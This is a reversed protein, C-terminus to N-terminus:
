GAGEDFLEGPRHKVSGAEIVFGIQGSTDVREIWVQFDEADAMERLVALSEEDLLSGDRVRIVRLKPNGRMAIACSVRLQDADSAQEFPFGNFIVRGESLSLGEVPMDAKEIRNRAQELCESITTSCEAAKGEAITAEGMLRAKESAKRHIENKADASAIEEHLPALDKREPIEPFSEVSEVLEALEKVIAQRRAVAERLAQEAGEEEIGAQELRVKAESVLAERRERERQQEVIAANEREGEQIQKSIATVDVLDTPVDDPLVIKEAAARNEKVTRNHGTRENYADERKESLDSFDLGVLEKLTEYQAKEDMRAFALPDFSLSDLLDDIMAQPSPFKAGQVTEVSLSTTIREETKGNEKDDLKQKTRRFRRKVIIEGLDLTIRAKDEGRRIPERQHSRVGGLAWWISDLVASKGAGNRGTIEVLNGDPKIEVAVLRKVNEAQLSIIKM